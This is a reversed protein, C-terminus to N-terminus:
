EKLLYRGLPELSAKPNATLAAMISSPHTPMPKAAICQRRDQAASKFGKISKSLQVGSFGITLLGAAATGIRVLKADSGTPAANNIAPLLLCAVSYAACAIGSGLLCASFYTKASARRELDFRIRDASRACGAQRSESILPPNNIASDLESGITQAQSAAPIWLLSLACVAIPLIQKITSYANFM